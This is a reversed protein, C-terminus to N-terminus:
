SGQFGRPLLIQNLGINDGNINFIVTPPPTVSDKELLGNLELALKAAQLRTNENAGGRMISAVQDLCDEPSLNSRDLLDKLETNEDSRPNKLGSQKLVEHIQDPRLLPM